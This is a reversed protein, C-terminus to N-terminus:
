PSGTMPNVGDFFGRRKAFTFVASLTVKIHKYTGHALDDTKTKNATEIECMLNEGDVTRFDRVRGRVRAKLHCRWSDKYGKVTSRALRKEIAPFYTKEVFDVIGVGAGSTFGIRNLRDM